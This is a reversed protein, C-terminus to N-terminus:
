SRLAERIFGSWPASLHSKDLEFLQRAAAGFRPHHQATIEEIKHLITETPHQADDVGRPDLCSASHVTGDRMTISVTAPYRKGPAKSKDFAEATVKRRLQDIVPDHLTSNAFASASAHGHFLTTAAVHPFSFRASLVTAPAKEMLDVKDKPIELKIKEIDGFANLPIKPRVQLLAEIVANNVVPCSYIRHTPHLVSWDEGLANGLKDPLANYALVGTLADYPSAPLGTFGCQAWRVSMMGSWAGAAPWVDRVMAGRVTHNYPAVNSLTVAISLCQLFTETDVGQIMAAAAASGIASLRGHGYVPGYRNTPWQWALSIRAIIEYALVEARLVELGSLGRAEAEAAIVPVTSLGGHCPGPLYISAMESNSIALANAVAATFRDARPAGARFLTAESLGNGDAMMKQFGGVDPEDQTSAGVAIDDVIVLAAHQLVERPIDEVKVSQAWEVLARLQKVQADIETNGTATM